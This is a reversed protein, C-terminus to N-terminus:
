AALAGLRTIESLLTDGAAKVYKQGSQTREPNIKLNGSFLPSDNRWNLGALRRILMETDLTPDEEKKKRILFWLYGIVALGSGTMLMSNDEVRIKPIGDKREKTLGALKKFTPNNEVLIDLTSRLGELFKNYEESGSAGLVDSANTAFVNDGCQTGILAWKLMVRIQSTTWVSTTRASVTQKAADVTHTFLGCKQILELVLGNAPNRRDFVALMSQSISKTKACDAFDQHVQLTGETFTIMAGIADTSCKEAEEIAQKIGEVRHQGDTIEMRTGIPMVMVAAKSSANGELTYVDVKQDFNLTLSPLIYPADTNVASAVYNGIAKAHGKDLPRNTARSVDDVSSGGKGVHLRRSATLNALSQLDLATQFCYRGGQNYLTGATTTLNSAMSAQAVRRMMDEFDECPVVNINANQNPM